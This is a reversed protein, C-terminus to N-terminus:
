KRLAIAGTGLIGVGVATNNGNLVNVDNGSLVKNGNFNNSAYNSGRDPKGGRDFKGHKQGHDFKGHDNKAHHRDGHDNKGHHKSGHDNRAHHKDGRDNKGHHKDGHGHHKDGHDNKAHHKDGRDNKGHRKDGDDVAIAGTGLIGVGVATNNGNLVNVDNGSLVKNGNFNNSYRDTATGAVVADLEAESLREPTAWAPGAFAMTVATAIAATTARKM